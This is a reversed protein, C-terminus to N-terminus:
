DAPWIITKGEFEAYAVTKGQYVGLKATLDVARAADLIAWARARPRKSESLDRHNIVIWGPRDALLKGSLIAEDWNTKEDHYVPLWTMKEAVMRKLDKSGYSAIWDKKPQLFTEFAAKKREATEADLRYCRAKCAAMVVADGNHSHCYERMYTYEVWIPQIYDKVSIEQRIPAGTLNMQGLRKDEEQKRLEEEAEAAEIAKEKERNATLSALVGVQSPDSVLLMWSDPGSNHKGYLWPSQKGEFKIASAVLEREASSMAAVDLDVLVPSDTGNIGRAIAAKRDVSVYVSTKTM